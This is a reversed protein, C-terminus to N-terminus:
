QIIYVSRLIRLFDIYTCIYIMLKNRMDIFTNRTYIYLLTRKIRREETTREAYPNQPKRM